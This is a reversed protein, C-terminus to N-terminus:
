FFWKRELSKLMMQTEADRKRNESDFRAKDMELRLSDNKCDMELRKNDMELRLSDNKNDMELRKNDMELRGSTLRVDYLYIMSIILATSGAVATGVKSGM